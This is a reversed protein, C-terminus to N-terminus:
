VIDVDGNVDPCLNIDSRMQGLMFRMRLCVDDYVKAILFVLGEGIYTRSPSSAIVFTASVAYSVAFVGYRLKVFIGDASGDFPLSRKLAGISGCPLLLSILRRHRCVHPM